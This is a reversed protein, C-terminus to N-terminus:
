EFLQQKVCEIIKEPPIEYQCRSWEGSDDRVVDKCSRTGQNIRCCICGSEVGWGCRSRSSIHKSNPYDLLIDPERSANVIIQKRSFAGAINSVCSPPSMVLSCGYVMVVLDRLTTQGRMDTVGQLDPSIDKVQNGGIQVIEFDNKLEEVVKQWHPYGKSRSVTQCNANLLIKGNWKKSKEKEKESLYLVPTRTTIPVMDIGILACLSRTFGEVVNGNIGAQEEALSGYTVKGIETFFPTNQTYDENYDTLEPCFDPIKFKIEPYASCINRVAGTCIVMDGSHLHSQYSYIKM